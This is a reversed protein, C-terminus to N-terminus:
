PQAGGETQTGSEAPPAPRLILTAPVSSADHEPGVWVSWVGRTQSRAWGEIREAVPEGRPPAGRANLAAAIWEARERSRHTGLIPWGNATYIQWPQEGNSSGGGVDVRVPLWGLPAGEEGPSAPQEPTRSPEGCRRCFGDPGPDHPAPERHLNPASALDSGCDECTACPGPEMSGYATTKGCKCRFNRM